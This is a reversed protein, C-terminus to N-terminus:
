SKGTALAKYNVRASRRKDSVAALNALQEDSSINREELRAARAAPVNVRKNEKPKSTKLMDAFEADVEVSSEKDSDENSLIQLSHIPWISVEGHPVDIVYSNVGNAGLIYYSERTWTNRHSKAFKDQIGSKTKSILLRCRTRNFEVNKTITKLNNEVTKAQVLETMRIIEEQKPTISAPTVEKRLIKSLTTHPTNNINTIIDQLADVWRNADDREFLAGLRERLIRHFRDTRALRMHTFAESKELEISHKALMPPVASKYESGGDVRLVSIEKGDRKMLKLIVELAECVTESKNNTLPMAYAYRSTSNIVTVIARAKDNKGKLIDFYVVDSQWHGAEGGTPAMMSLSPKTWKKNVSASVESALFAKAEKVTVNARKALLTANRTSTVPDRYIKEIDSIKSDQAEMSAMLQITQIYVFIYYNM